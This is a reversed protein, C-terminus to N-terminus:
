QGPLVGGLRLAQSPSRAGGGGKKWSRKRSRLKMGQTRNAQNAWSPVHVPDDALKSAFAALMLACKNVIGPVSEVVLLTVESEDLDSSAILAPGDFGTVFAYMRHELSNHSSENEQFDEKPKCAVVQCSESGDEWWTSKGHHTCHSCMKGGDTVM